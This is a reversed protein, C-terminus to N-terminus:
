HPFVNLSSELLTEFDITDALHTGRDGKPQDEVYLVLGMICDFDTYFYCDPSFSFHVRLIERNFYAISSQSSNTSM